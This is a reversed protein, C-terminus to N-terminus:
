EILDDADLDDIDDLFKDVDESSNTYSIPNDIIESNKLLSIAEILVYPFICEAVKDDESQNMYQLSSLEKMIFIKFKELDKKDEM